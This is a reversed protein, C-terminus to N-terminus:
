NDHPAYKNHVITFMRNFRLKMKNPAKSLWIIGAKGVIHDEPVFGWYRSDQSNHRNDGMMWYYNMKFTYSDAAQGNIKVQNGSIDMTNDEYAVICRKYLAINEPTLKITVGKEPVWIPGYNSVTWNFADSNPYLDHEPMEFDIMRVDTVKPNQKLAAAVQANCHVKILGNEEIKYKDAMDFAEFDADTFFAGSKPFINYSFQMFEPKYAEKGNIYLTNHVIQLSDGAVAVCRKIYNTRKDVPRTEIHFRQRVVNWGNGGTVINADALAQYYTYEGNPYEALVTDGAPFNFVVMDNRKVKEYGPLRMYPLEIIDTYSKIGLVPISNHVLPLALPTQPIRSGYSYKNVFLFDGVRLTGEMSSSPINYAEVFFMRIFSAAVLAYVIADTWEAAGSKPQMKGPPYGGPGIYKQYEKKNKDLPLFIIPFFGRLFRKWVSKEGFAKYLEVVMQYVTLFGIVPIFFLAFWWMPKNIIELWTKINVIPKMALAKDKGAREFYAGVLFALIQQCIFAGIFIFIFYLM